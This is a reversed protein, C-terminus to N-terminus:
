RERARALARFESELAALVAYAEGIAPISASRASPPKARTTWSGRATPAPSACCKLSAGHRPEGLRPRLGASRARHTGAGDRGDQSARVAHRHADSARASAFYADFLAATLKPARARRAEGLAFPLRRPSKPPSKKRCRSRTTWRRPRLTGVLARRRERSRDFARVVRVRDETRRVSGDLVHTANLAKAAKPKDRGRFAFSSTSGIVKLGPVRSVAYLIEESVGDSFFRTARDRSPHTSRSCPSCRRPAHADRRAPATSRM